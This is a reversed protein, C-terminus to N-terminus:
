RTALRGETGIWLVVDGVIEEVREAGCRSGTMPTRHAETDREPVPRRRSRSSETSSNRDTNPTSCGSDTRRGRTASETRRHRRMRTCTGRRRSSGSRTARVHSEADRRHLARDSTDDDRPRQAPFTEKAEAPAIPELEAPTQEGSFVPDHTSSDANLRGVVRTKAGDERSTFRPPLMSEARNMSTPRSLMSGDASEALTALPPPLIPLVSM